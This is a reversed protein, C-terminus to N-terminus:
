RRSPDAHTRRLVVATESNVTRQRIVAVRQWGAPAPPVASKGPLAMLRYVCERGRPERDRGAHVRYGGFYQLASIMGVPVGPVEICSSAPVHTRLQEVLYRYSRAHDLMPLCLTTLLTWCVAVGGAPLVLSKWLPHRQHSTRWRVLAFWAVSAAVAICLTLVSFSGHFGPIVRAINRATPAPWGTQAALYVVWFFLAGATFFFVSFWDIAASVSRKLTPLAFAALVALPPAALMLAEKSGGMTLSVALGVVSLVTPLVIHRERWHQRWRWLTWGALLWTPWVFWLLMQALKLVPGPAHLQWSWAHLAFAVAVSAATASAVGLAKPMRREEEELLVWALAVGGLLLSVSPAGSSSLMLLAAALAGLAWRAHRELACLATMYLSMAVWQMMEPTTEHGLQLLGLTSILALLAGDAITRAYDLPHAEGGFAFPLPQAAKGRALLYSSYWTLALVLCLLAIFPLRAALAPDVLPSFLKISAAGLWYPLVGGDHAHQGAVAPEWWSSQGRALSLMFGFARVDNDKWPDRGIMGPLAYSAVLGILASRPLRAVARQSVLAPNTPTM